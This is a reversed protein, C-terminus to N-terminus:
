PSRPRVRWVEMEGYTPDNIRQRIQGHRMRLWQQFQERRHDDEAFYKRMRGDVLVVDPGVRDLAKLFTIPDDEGGSGSMQLPVFFSRYDFSELGFWYNHLGLVRSGRPIEARVRSIFNEYPTTQAAADDLAVHRGIGEAALALLIAAFSARAWPMQSTTRWAATGGWSAAIAGIPIATVLYNSLKSTILLAFLVAFLFAPVVVARAARVEPSCAQRSFARRGLIVLSVPVVALAAWVGPRLLYSAGPPGLGPDYRQPESVLNTWYWTPSTLGFRPAYSRTQAFWSAPDDAVYAVYALWPAAFGFLLAVLNRGGAGNWWALVGLVLIWFVGYLHSLGALAALLGALAFLGRANREQGRCYVCLSSLGFVPVVIDYRAIRAMDVLLIGTPQSPTLATTRVLLLIAVSALAVTSDFLRKALVNTLLLTLLGMLVAEARTQWLGFGAVRYTGALLLPHVPMYGYYHHEMGNLGRFLDSGFVGHNAIKLGTSAQWPEDEYVPPVVTLHRFSAVLYLALLVGLMVRQSAHEDRSRSM